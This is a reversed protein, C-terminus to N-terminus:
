HISLKYMVSTVFINTSFFAAVAVMSRPSLRSLGAIGHGSTCGSGFCSGAGVFFGGVMFWVNSRMIHNEVSVPYYVAMVAGALLLGALFFVRNVKHDFRILPSFLGNVIGSIGLIEGALAMMIGVSSGILAGGLMPQWFPLATSASDQFGDNTQKHAFSFMIAMAAMSVALASIASMAGPQSTQRRSQMTKCFAMGVLMFAAFILTKENLGMVAVLGPGPCFGSFAWGMGFMMSGVLLNHDIEKKCPINFSSAFLPHEFKSKLTYFIISHSFVASFFVIGLTPDWKPTGVNFINFFEAAHIPDTMGGITLGLGVLFACAFFSMAVPWDVQLDQHKAPAPKTAVPAVPSVAAPPPVESHGNAMPEAKKVLLPTTSDTTAVM